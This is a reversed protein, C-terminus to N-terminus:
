FISTFSFMLFAFCIPLCPRPWFFLPQTSGAAKPPIRGSSGPRCTGKSKYTQPCRDKVQRGQCRCRRRQPSCRRGESDGSLMACPVHAADDSRQMRWGGNGLMGLQNGFATLV